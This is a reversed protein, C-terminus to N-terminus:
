LALYPLCYTPVVGAGECLEALRGESFTWVPPQPATTAPAAAGAGSGGGEAAAAPPAAAAGGDPELGVDEAHIGGVIFASDVGAAAAGAIDHELSDGVALCAAPPLGLMELAAQYILPAPKGMLHVQPPLALFLHPLLFSLPCSFLWPVSAVTLTILLTAPALDGRLTPPWCAHASAPFPDCPAPQAHLPRVEGGMAEYQRALWGPMPRLQTGDVTVVDPNAVILPLRRAACVRLLAVM